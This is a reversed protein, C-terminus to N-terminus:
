NKGRKGGDGLSCGAERRGTRTSQKAEGGQSSTITERKVVWVANQKKEEVAKWRNNKGVQSKLAPKGPPGASCVIIKLENPKGQKKLRM